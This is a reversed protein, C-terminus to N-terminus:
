SFRVHKISRNWLTPSFVVFSLVTASKYSNAYSNTSKFGITTHININKKENSIFIFYYQTLSVKNCYIIAWVPKLFKSKSCSLLHFKHNKKKVKRKYKWQFDIKYVSIKLIQLFTLKWKNYRVHNPYNKFQFKEFEIESSMIQSIKWIASWYQLYRPRDKRFINKRTYFSKRCSDESHNSIKFTKM